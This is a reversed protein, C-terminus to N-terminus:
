RDTKKGRTQRNFIHRPETSSPRSQLSSEEKHGRLLHTSWVFSVDIAGAFVTQLINNNIALNRPKREKEEGPSGTSSTVRASQSVKCPDSLGSVLLVVIVIKDCSDYNQKAQEEISQVGRSLASGWHAFWSFLYIGSDDGM